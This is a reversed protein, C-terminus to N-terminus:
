TTATLETYAVLTMGTTVLLLISMVIPVGWQHFRLRTQLQEIMPRLQKYTSLARQRLMESEAKLEFGVQRLTLVHAVVLMAAVLLFVVSATLLAHNVITYNADTKMQSALLGQGVPIAILKTMADSSTANMKVVFDLKRREFEERAKDFNFGSAYIDFDSLFAQMIEGWSRLLVEFRQETSVNFLFRVLVRKIADLRGVKLHDNFIAHRSQSLDEESPVDDLLWQSYTLPISLKRGTLIIATGPGGIGTRFDDAVLKLIEAFEICRLYAAVLSPIPAEGLAYDEQILYFAEPAEVQFRGMNYSLLAGTNQAVVEGAKSVGHVVLEIQCGHDIGAVGLPREKGEVITTVRRGGAEIADILASVEASSETRVILNAGAIQCARSLRCLGVISDFAPM